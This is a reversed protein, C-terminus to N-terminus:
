SQKKVRKISCGFAKTDAKAAEKGSLLADLASRLDQSSIEDIDRSDDIRGHYRIVGKNDIVYVEPTVTAGYADAVTNNPDKLVTFMFGNKRAHDKVEEVDEQSNSNIGLFTIGKAAYDKDLKAMRENYANSVPCRTAIFILAVFKSTSYDNLSQSKGNVDNLTFSPAKTGPTLASPPAAIALSLFLSLGTLVAVAHLSRRM